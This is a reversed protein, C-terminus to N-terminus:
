GICYESIHKGSNRLKKKKNNNNNNDNKVKAMNTCYFNSRNKPIELPVVFVANGVYKIM